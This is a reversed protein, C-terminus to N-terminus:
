EVGGLAKRTASNMWAEDIYEPTSPRSAVILEDLKTILDKTVQRNESVGGGVGLSERGM